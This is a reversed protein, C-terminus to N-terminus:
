HSHAQNFLIQLLRRATIPENYRLYPLNGPAVCPENPGGCPYGSAVHNAKAWAAVEFLPHGVPVDQFDQGSPPPPPPPASGIERAEIQWGNADHQYALIGGNAYPASYRGAGTGVLVPQGFTSDAQETVSMLRLAAYSEPVAMYDALETETMARDPQLLSSGHIFYITAKGDASLVGTPYIAGEGAGVQAATVPSATGLKCYMISGGAQQWTAGTGVAKVWYCRAGDASIKVAAGNPVAVYVAYGWCYYAVLGASTVALAASDGYSGRGSIPQWQFTTGGDTSAGHVVQSDTGSAYVNHCIINITGDPTVAIAAANSNQQTIQRSAQWQGGSYKALWLSRVPTAYDPHVMYASGDPAYALAPGSTGADTGSPVAVQQAPSYSAGGDATHAAWVELPSGSSYAVIGNQGNSAVAPILGQGLTVPNSM